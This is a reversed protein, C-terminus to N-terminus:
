RGSNRSALSTKLAFAARRSLWCWYLPPTLVLEESESSSDDGTGGGTGGGGGGNLNSPYRSQAQLCHRRSLCSSAGAIDSSRSWRKSMTSIEYIDWYTMIPCATNLNTTTSIETKALRSNWWTCGSSFIWQRLIDAAMRTFLHRFQMNDTM